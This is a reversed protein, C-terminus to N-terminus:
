KKIKHLIEMQWGTDVKFTYLIVLIGVIGVIKQFVIEEVIIKKKLFIQQFDHM